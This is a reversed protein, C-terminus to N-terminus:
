DETQLREVRRRLSRGKKQWKSRLGELRRIRRDYEEVKGEAANAAQEAIEAATPPVKEPKPPKPPKEKKPKVYNQVTEEQSVTETLYDLAPSVGGSGAGLGTLRSAQGATVLKNPGPGSMMPLNKNRNANALKRWWYTGVVSHIKWIPRGKANLEVRYTFLRCQTTGLTEIQQALYM